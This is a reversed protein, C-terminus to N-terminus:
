WVNLVESSMNSMMEVKGCLTLLAACANEIVWCSLAGLRRQKLVTPAGKSKLVGLYGARATGFPDSIEQSPNGVPNSFAFSQM